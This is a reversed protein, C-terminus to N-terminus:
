HESKYISLAESVIAARGSEMINILENLCEYNVFDKGLFVEYNSTLHKSIDKILMEKEKLSSATKGLENKLNEILDKNRNVIEDVIVNKTTEEFTTLAEQKEAVSKKIESELELIEADFADLNYEKENRDKRIVNKIAQIKKRNAKTKDRLARMQRIAPWKNVKTHNNITNYIILFATIITFYIAGLWVPEKTPIFYFVGFPVAFFLIIHFLCLILFEFFGKPYFLICFLKSNCFRPLRSEKLLTSIEVGIQRNEEKVDATEIEIRGAVEKGKAKDRNIKAKKLKDQDREIEKNFSAAIEEKRKKITLEISDSTVKEEAVLDRETRKFVINLEDRGEKTRSLEDLISVADKLFGVNGSLVSKSEM